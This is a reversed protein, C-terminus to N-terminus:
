PRSPRQTRWRSFPIHRATGDTKTVIMDIPDAVTIWYADDANVPVTIAQGSGTIIQLDRAAASLVGVFTTARQPGSRIFGHTGHAALETSTTGAMREGTQPNRAVCCIAGPGPVLDITGEPGEYVRRALDRNLEPGLGHAPAPQDSLSQDAPEAPRQFARFADVHAPELANLRGDHSDEAHDGVGCV